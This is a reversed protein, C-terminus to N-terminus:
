VSHSKLRAVDDSRGARRARTQVAGAVHCGRMAGAYLCGRCSRPLGCVPRPGEAEDAQRVSRGPVSRGAHRWAGHVARAAHRTRRRGPGAPQPHRLADKGRERRRRFQRGAL